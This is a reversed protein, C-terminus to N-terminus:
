KIQANTNRRQFIDFYEKFIYKRNRKYGTLESLIELEVLQNIFRNATSPSIGFFTTVFKADTIPTQYLQRILKYGNEIKSGLKPLKELDLRSKLHLIDKFVQISEQSTEIM